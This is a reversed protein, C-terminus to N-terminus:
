DSMVSMICNKCDFNLSYTKGLEDRLRLRAKTKCMGLAYKICHKCRMLAVQRNPKDSEFSWEKINVGSKKYFEQASKNHINARYDVEKEFYETYKMPKQWQRIEKDYTEIRKQMLEEFINRRLKNIESVPMFPLETEIKIDEIYFDSEGTKSFQKIFTDKMKEPNNAKEGTPLEYSVSVGDEDTINVNNDIYINVGIQRKVPKQLEKEFEVDLNRWL